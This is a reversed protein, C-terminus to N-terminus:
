VGQVHEREWADWEHITCGCAICHDRKPPGVYRWEHGDGGAGCILVSPDIGGSASRGPPVRRPEIMM